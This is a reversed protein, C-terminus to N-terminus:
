ENWLAVPNDLILPLDINNWTISANFTVQDTKAAGVPAAAMVTVPADSWYVMGDTDNDDVRFGLAYQGGSKSMANWFDRNNKVV